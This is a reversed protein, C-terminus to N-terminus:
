SYLARFIDHETVMGVIRESEEVPFGGIRRALIIGIVEEIDDNPRVTIFYTSMAAKVKERRLIEDADATGFGAFENASIFRLVGTTRLMGAMEGRELVPLRRVGKSIMTKTAAALSTDPTVSVIERSMIDAATIGLGGHAFRKIFDRESVVAVVRGEGDIVPCGGVGGDLLTKAAKGVTESEKVSVVDTSMIRSVPLNVAAFLNGGYTNKVIKYKEGGGCFDVIDRASLMGALRKTGADVVPVRRIGQDVMVVCAQKVSTTPYICIPTKSAISMVSGSRAEPHRELLKESHKPFIKPALKNVM